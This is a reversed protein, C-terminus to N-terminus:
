QNCDQKTAAYRWGASDPLYNQQSVRCRWPSALLFTANIHPVRSLFTSQATTRGDGRWGWCAAWPAPSPSGPRGGAPRAAPSRHPSPLRYPFKKHETKQIPQPHYISIRMILFTKWFVKKKPYIHVVKVRVNWGRDFEAANCCLWRDNSFGMQM